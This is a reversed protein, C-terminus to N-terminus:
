GRMAVVPDLKSANLAPLLGSLIGTIISLGVGYIANWMTLGVAFDSLNSILTLVGYVLLLGVLGGIICLIIAETLIEMLIINRRAGLAKKVGILNTREKVSVFMINAVSFLGVILAFVGIIYGVFTMIGFVSDIIGNLMSINNVFFNNEEIPRIQRIARLNAIIEDKLEDLSIGDKAKANLLRGNREDKINLIQRLKTLPMITAIDYPIPSFLNDGNEEVVGIVQFKAGYMKVYKGIPNIDQFLESAITAGLILKNSGQQYEIPTFWRGSKFKLNAIEGYDFTPGMIFAGEVSSANYKIASGGTFINFAVKDALDLREKLQVYEEYSPEPFKEYKRWNDDDDEDWPNTDIYVVDSGLESFSNKISYKMSDIASQVSVISFIGITIGLLSLFTRLKNATLQHLGQLISEYIIKILLQEKKGIYV